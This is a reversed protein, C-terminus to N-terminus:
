DVGDDVQEDIYSLYQAVMLDTISSRGSFNGSDRKSYDSGYSSPLDSNLSVSADRSLETDIVDVALYFKNSSGDKPMVTKEQDDSLIFWTIYSVFIDLAGIGFYYTFTVNTQTFPSLIEYVVEELFVIIVLGTLLIIHLSTVVTNIKLGTAVKNSSKSSM